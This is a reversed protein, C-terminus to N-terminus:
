RETAGDELVKAVYLVVLCLLLQGAHIWAEHRLLKRLLEILTDVLVLLVHYVGHPDLALDVDDIIQDRM